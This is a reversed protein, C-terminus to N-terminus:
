GGGTVRALLAELVETSVHARGLLWGAGHRVAVQTRGADGPGAVTSPDVGAPLHLLELTDGDLLQLVRLTGAPLDAGVTEISLVPLGPV